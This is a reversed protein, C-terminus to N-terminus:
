SLVNFLQVNLSSWISLIDGENHSISLDPALSEQFSDVGHECSSFDRVQEVFFILIDDWEACLFYVHVFDTDLSFVWADQGQPGEEDVSNLITQM